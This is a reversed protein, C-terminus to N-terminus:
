EDPPKNAATERTSSISAIGGECLAFYGTDAARYDYSEGGVELVVWYGQVPAQM